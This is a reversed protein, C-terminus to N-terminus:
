ARLERAAKRFEERWPLRKRTASQVALVLGFAAAVGIAPAGRVVMTRIANAVESAQTARTMSESLPLIRQNLLLLADGKWELTKVSGSGGRPGEKM